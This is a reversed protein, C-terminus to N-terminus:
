GELLTSPGCARPFLAKFALLSCVHLPRSCLGYSCGRIRSWCLNWAWCARTELGNTVLGRLVVTQPQTVPMSKNHLVLIGCFCWVPLWSPMLFPAELFLRDLSSKTDGNLKTVVLKLPPRPVCGADLPKIECESACGVRISGFVPQQRAVRRAALSPLSTTKKALENM